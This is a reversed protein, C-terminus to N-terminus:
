RTRARGKGQIGSREIREEDKKKLQEFEERSIWSKEGTESNIWEIMEVGDRMEFRDKRNFVAEMMREAHDSGEVSVGVMTIPPNIKGFLNAGANFIAIKEKNSLNELTMLENYNAWLETALIKPNTFLEVLKKPYRLTKGSKLSRLMGAIKKKDSCVAGGIKGAEVAREPCEKFTKGQFQKPVERKNEEM